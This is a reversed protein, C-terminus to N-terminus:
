KKRRIKYLNKATNKHIVIAYPISDFNRMYALEWREARRECLLEGCRPWEMKRISGRKPTFPYLIHTRYKATIRLHLPFHLM